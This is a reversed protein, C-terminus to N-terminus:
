LGEEECIFLWVRRAAAEWATKIPLPLDDFEPMLGGQYNLNGTSEAYAQYASKAIDSWNM